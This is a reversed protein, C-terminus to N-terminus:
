NVMSIGVNGRSVPRTLLFFSHCSGIGPIKGHGTITFVYKIKIKYVLWHGFIIDYILLHFNEDFCMNRFSLRVVVSIIKSNVFFTKSFFPMLM